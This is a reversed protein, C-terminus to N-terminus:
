ARVLSHWSRRLDRIPRMTLARLSFRTKKVDILTFEGVESLTHCGDIYPSAKAPARLTVTEAISVQDPTLVDFRAMRVAAGYTGRCDQLPVHLFGDKWVPTGGPRAGNSEIVIPNAAHSTWPGALTQSWAACLHTLRHAEPFAPSYFLWWRTGDHVPTADLPVDDLVIPHAREWRYPFHVARYLWLGGSQFAEPLMWTEGEAEFVFPYSLHWPERLVDAQEVLNLSRDFITVIIRGVADRYDFYESFVHLQEDRWIGFPDALYRLNGSGPVWTLPLGELSGRSLVHQASAAVIACRWIDKKLQM